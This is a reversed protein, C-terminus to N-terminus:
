TSKATSTTTSNANDEAKQGGQVRLQKAQGLCLKRWAKRFPEKIRPAKFAYVIPNVASNLHSLLIGVYFANHSVCHSYFNLTNMIHLPLWCVAFLTLVLALLHALKQEKIYYARSNVTWGSGRKLQQSITCFIYCYLVTMIIMAPFLCSLFCFNVMYSMPIVTLFHCKITTNFHAASDRNSWGFMPIFGLLTATVWCIAVATWSHIVKVKRKYQLPISVRLYRDIAITLLSLVSAQTLVIVVCSIFLCGDFSTEARGNVLIALPIAMAGVLIDAVALSLILCYTAHKLAGCMWVAWIVLMNGVCCAVAILTELATYIVEGYDAM